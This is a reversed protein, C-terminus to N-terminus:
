KMGSKSKRASYLAFVKTLAKHEAPTMEPRSTKLFDRFSEAKEWTELAKDAEAESKAMKEMKSRKKLEMKCWAASKKPNAKCIEQLAKDLNESQLSAGMTSSGPATAPSGADLSKKLGRDRGPVDVYPKSTSVAPAAGHKSGFKRSSFYGSRERQSMHVQSQRLHHTKQKHDSTAQAANAHMNMAEHHDQGSFGHSYAHAPGTGHVAKGSTTHGLVSPAKPEEKRLEEVQIDESKFMGGMLARMDSIKSTKKDSSEISDPKYEEAEAVKNCPTITISVKRALSTTIRHGVKDLKGGQISFNVVPKMDAPYGGKERWKEDYRMWAAVDQAGSHGVDDFLEGVVWLFPVKIMNWHKLEQSTSCDEESFIKKAKLIKGVTQSALKEEHEFNFTGDRELSSIDLGKMDLVEGSSDLTQCAAVGCIMMGM